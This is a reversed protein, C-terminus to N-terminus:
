PTKQSPDQPLFVAVNNLFSVVATIVAALCSYGLTLWYGKSLVATGVGAAPFAAGVGQILTRLARLAAGRAKDRVTDGPSSSLIVGRATDGERRLSRRRSTSTHTSVPTAMDRSLASM